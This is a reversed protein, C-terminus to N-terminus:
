TMLPATPTCRFAGVFDTLATGEADWEGNREM